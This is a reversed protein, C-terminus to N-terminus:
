KSTPAVPSEATFWRKSFPDMKFFNLLLSAVKMGGEPMSPHTGDRPSLDPKTWVLRDVKRPNTGDAWLYPGWLVLPSKIEGRAPDCNLEPKGSVQDQIVWRVAFASEYAYPEPNLPTTALGAYIRSSLYAIRLNPFRQHLLNLISVLHTKLVQAHEPFEGLRSPGAEAQKLWVVQVQQPTISARQLRAEVEQWVPAEPRAWVAGTKGGQAGDVLVVQPSKEPDSNALRRFASYEMTTNSMGVSLVGIKGNKDPQGEADRPVIQASQKQAAAAHAAPPENKGGGYLGGDEGKYKAAGLETLPVLGTSERPAPPRNVGAALYPDQARASPALTLTLLLAVFPTFHKM